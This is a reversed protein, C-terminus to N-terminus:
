VAILAAALRRGEGALYNYLRCAAATDMFELGLGAAQLAQRVARPPLSQSAGTGLLVFEASAREAVIEAFHEPGLEGLSRPSWPRVRDDLILVSGEHRVGGIRFGGSGLGEVGPPQRM